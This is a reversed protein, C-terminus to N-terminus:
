MQNLCSAHPRIHTRLLRQESRDQGIRGALLVDQAQDLGTVHEPRPMSLYQSCHLPQPVAALERGRLVNVLFDLAVGVQGATDGQVGHRQRTQQPLGGARRMGSRIRGDDHLAPDPPVKLEGTGADNLSGLVTVQLNRETLGRTGASVQHRARGPPSSQWRTQAGLRAAQRDLLGPPGTALV